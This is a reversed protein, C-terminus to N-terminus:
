ENNSIWRILYKGDMEQFFDADGMDIVPIEFSIQYSESLKEETNETSIITNYYVIGKRIYSFKAKPNQKYLIKKIENKTIM